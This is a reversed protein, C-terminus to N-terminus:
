PEIERIVDSCKAFAAVLRDIRVHARLASENKNHYFLALENRMARIENQLWTQRDSLHIIQRELDTIRDSVLESNAATM